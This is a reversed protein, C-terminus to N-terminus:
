LNIYLLPKPILNLRDNFNTLDGLYLAFKENLRNGFDKTTIILLLDSEIFMSTILFIYIRM